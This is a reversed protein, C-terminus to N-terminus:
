RIKAYESDEANPLFKPLIFIINKTHKQKITNNELKTAPSFSYLPITKASSHGGLFIMMFRLGIGTGYRSLGGFIIGM